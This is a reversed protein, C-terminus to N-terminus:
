KQSFMKQFQCSFKVDNEALIELISYNIEQQIDMYTNYDGTPLFYVVEFIFSYDGLSKFHIRDVTIDKIKELSKKILGNLKKIKGLSTDLEVGFRFEVRRRSMRGYNHIRSETLEKNSFVIEEGQLAQVRTTKIGIKQVVGMDTGVIIFDGVKFPKDFYISLSSFVDSLINQVALAVAIGAIGLGALLATVDYGANSAILLLAIVWLSYSFAKSLVRIVSPDHKKENERKKIYKETLYSIIKQVVLVAYFTVVALTALRLVSNFFGPLEIFQVAVFLSIFFYFPWGISEFAEILADDFKNTTKQAIKKIKLVIFKEILWLIFYVIIFVIVPIWAPSIEFGFFNLPVPFQLLLVKKGGAM